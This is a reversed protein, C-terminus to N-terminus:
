LAGETNRALAVTINDTAGALLAQEVLKDCIEQLPLEMRLHEALVEDRLVGHLGDSSLLLIENTNWKRQFFDAEEHSATGLARTIINRQPHVDAESRTIEGNEVLIAVLSHDQTVQSLSWGDFHYLRSDGVNAAIYFRPFLLAMVLTTGMGRCGPDMRSHRFIDQNVLRIATRILGMPDEDSRELSISVLQEVIGETALKSARKGAAHGGMGDAVVILAPPVGPPSIYFSDENQLRRGTNTQAAYEM